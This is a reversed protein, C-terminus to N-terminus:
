PMRLLALLPGLAMLGLWDALWRGWMLVSKRVLTRGM